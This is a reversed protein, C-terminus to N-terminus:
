WVTQKHASAQEM